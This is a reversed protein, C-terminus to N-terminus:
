PQPVFRPRATTGTLLLTNITNEVILDEVLTQECAKKLSALEYQQSLHLLEAVTEGINDPVDGTYIHNIMEQVVAPSSDEIELEDKMKEAM